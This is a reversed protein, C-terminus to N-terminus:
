RSQDQRARAPVATGASANRKRNGDAPLAPSVGVGFRSCVRTNVRATTIQTTCVLYVTNEDPEIQAKFTRTGKTPVWFTQPIAKCPYPRTVDRKFCEVAFEESLPYNNVATYRYAIFRSDAPAQLRSPSLGHANSAPSLLLPLTAALLLRLKHLQPWDLLSLTQAALSTRAM